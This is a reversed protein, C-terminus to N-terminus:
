HGKAFESRRTLKRDAYGAASADIAVRVKAHQQDRQDRDDAPRSKGRASRLERDRSRRKSRNQCGRARQHQHHGEIL